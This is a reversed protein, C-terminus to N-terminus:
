FKKNWSMWRIWLVIRSFISFIDKIFVWIFVEELTIIEGKASYGQSAWLRHWLERRAAGGGPRCGHRSVENHGLCKSDTFSYFTLSASDSLLRTWFWRVDITRLRSIGLATKGTVAVNETINSDPLEVEVNLETIDNIRNNYSYTVLAELAVITDVTSIFGGDGMRM